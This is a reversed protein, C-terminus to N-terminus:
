SCVRAILATMGGRDPTDAVCTQAWECSRVCELVADSLCLAKIAKLRDQRGSEQALKMFTLATRKSFFTVAQIQQDDILKLLKPSFEGVAQAKYVILSEISIGLPKLLDDLSLAIDEGRLYLLPISKDQISQSLLEALDLGSGESAMVRQYGQARAAEATQEGVTYVPLDLAEPFVPFIRAAHASTLILAQYKKVEPVQFDKPMIELISESFPNLGLSRLEDSFDKASERPRTILIFSSNIM